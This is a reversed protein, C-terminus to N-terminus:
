NDNSSVLEVPKRSLFAKFDAISRFGILKDRIADLTSTMPREPDAFLEFADRIEDRECRWITGARIRGAFGLKSIRIGSDGISILVRENSDLKLQCYMRNPPENRYTVVEGM